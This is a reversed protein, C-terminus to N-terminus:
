YGNSVFKLLEEYLKHTPLGMVNFYSGEIKEVAAHGIWEQIGYAGAKDFPKFKTVYFNIEEDSLIKFFVDTKVSFSHRKDISRLTIGTIVQHKKGSLRKLIKIAQQKDTPKGIISHGLTVITDAAIILTNQKMERVNFAAAKVESIYQAVKEVPYGDPYDEFVDKTQIKFKIGLEELLQKRRPSASSLIVDYSELKNLLM